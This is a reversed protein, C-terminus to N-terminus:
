WRSFILSFYRVSEPTLRGDNSKHHRGIEVGIKLLPIFPQNASLLLWHHWIICKYMQLTQILKSLVNFQYNQLRWNVFLHIFTIFVSFLFHTSYFILKILEEYLHFNYINFKVFIQLHIKSASIWNTRSLLDECAIYSFFWPACKENM